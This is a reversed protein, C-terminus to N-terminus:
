QAVTKKKLCGNCRKTFMEKEVITFGAEDIDAAVDTSLKSDTNGDEQVVASVTLTM